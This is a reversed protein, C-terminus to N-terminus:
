PVSTPTLRPQPRHPPSQDLSRSGPPPSGFGRRHPRAPRRQSAHTLAQSRKCLNLGARPPRFPAARLNRQLDALEAAQDHWAKQLAAAAAQLEDFRARTREDSLEAMAKSRWVAFLSVAIAAVALVVSFGLLVVTSTM